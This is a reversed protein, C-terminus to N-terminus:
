KKVEEAKKNFGTTIVSKSTSGKLVRGQCEIEYDIIVGEQDAFLEYLRALIYEGKPAPTTKNLHIPVSQNKEEPKM